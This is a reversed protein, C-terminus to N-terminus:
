PGPLRKLVARNLAEAAKHIEKATIGDFMPLVMAQKYIRSVEQCDNYGLLAACNDAIEDKIGADIGYLLLDRRVPAADCPLLVIFFYCSPSVGEPVEITKIEPILLSRYIDAHHQRAKIRETLGPLKKQGIDAQVPHYGIGSPPPHQILRYAKEIIKKIGPLTLMFLMPNSLGKSFMFSEMRAAKVKELVPASDMRDHSTEERIRQILNKDGSVVMGGGYTNLPKTTEFSYFGASGFSGTHRGNVTAGFSHACDEIVPLNNQAAIDSITEIDCPLGFAHLVLIARTKGTIRKQIGVPDINLTLPSIDTPVCVAGLNEILPVLDKLTYAPIIVEDGAGIGLHKLILTMARRGSNLAITEGIGTFDAVRRELTEISNETFQNKHIANIISSIENKEIHAKRRPVM